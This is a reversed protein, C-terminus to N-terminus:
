KPNTMPDDRPRRPTLKPDDQWMMESGIRHQRTRTVRYLTTTPQVHQDTIYIYIYIIHIYIYLYIYTYAHTHFQVYVYM